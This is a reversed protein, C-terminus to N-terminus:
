RQFLLFEPPLNVKRYISKSLRVRNSLMRPSNKLSGLIAKLYLLRKNVISFYISLYFLRVLKFSVVWRPFYKLILWITGCLGNFDIQDFNRNQPSSKHFAILEGIVITDFGHAILNFCLEVDETVYFWREDIYGVIELAAKRWAGASTYVYSEYSQTFQNETLELGPEAWYKNEDFDTCPNVFGCGIAALNKNKQFIEVFKSIVRPPLFCDEDITVVFEGQAAKMGQNHGYASGTNTRLMIKKYKKEDLSNIFEASGDKSGNDVIIIELNPYSIDATRKVTEKLDELRNFSLIVISVLPQQM